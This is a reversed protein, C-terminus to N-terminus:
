KTRKKKIPMQTFQAWVRGHYLRPRGNKDIKVTFGPWDKALQLFRVHRGQGALALDTLGGKQQLHPVTDILQRNAIMTTGGSSLVQLAFDADDVTGKNWKAKVDNKLLICSCPNKNISFDTTQSFAFSTYRHAIVSLNKYSDFVKEVALLSKEAHIKVNKSDQRVMFHRIDDDMQWHADEDRSRSLKLASNRAFPLGADDKKLKHLNAKDYYKAYEKYDQPEVIITFDIGRKQLTQATLCHSARGKSVIYIPYKNM